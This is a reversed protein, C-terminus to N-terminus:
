HSSIKGDIIDKLFKIRSESDGVPWLYYLTKDTVDEAKWTCGIADFFEEANERAPDIVNAAFYEAESRKIENSAVFIHLWSCMGLASGRAYRAILKEAILIIIHNYVDVEYYDLYIDEFRDFAQNFVDQAQETYSSSGDEHIVLADEGFMHHVVGEAAGSVIELFESNSVLKKM